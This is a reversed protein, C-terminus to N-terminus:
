DSENQRVRFCFDNDVSQELWSRSDNQRTLVDDHDLRPLLCCGAHHVPGDSLRRAFAFKFIFRDRQTALLLM